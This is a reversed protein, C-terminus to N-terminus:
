LIMRLPIAQIEPSPKRQEKLEKEFQTLDQDPAAAVRPIYAHLKIGSETEGEWIRCQFGDLFVIKETSEITIKM